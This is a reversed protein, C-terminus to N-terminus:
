KLSSYIERLTDVGSTVDESVKLCRLIYQHSSEGKDLIANAYLLLNDKDVVETSQFKIESKSAVVGSMFDQRIKRAIRGFQDSLAQYTAESIFTANNQIESSHSDSIEQLLYDIKQNESKQDPDLVGNLLRKFELAAPEYGRNVPKTNYEFNVFESVPVGLQELLQKELVSDASSPKRYELVSLSERGFHELWDYLLMGSAGRNSMSLVKQCYGDLTNINYHRKVSQNYGSVISELPDRFFSVVEVSLGSCLSKMQKPFGYLSEASVLLTLGKKRADDVYLDMISQAKLVDSDILSAGVGSHGGSIGNVDFGHRPYYVGRELLLERNAFLFHQLASSGTKPAGIHLIVESNKM